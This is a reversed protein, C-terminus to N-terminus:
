GCGRPYGGRSSRRGRSVRFEPRDPKLDRLEAARAEALGREFELKHFGSLEYSTWEQGPIMYMEALAGAKVIDQHAELLAPPFADSGPAPALVLGLRLTYPKHWERNFVLTGPSSEWWWQDPCCGCRVHRNMREPLKSECDACGCQKVFVDEVRVVRIDDGADVTYVGDGEVVCAEYDVFRWVGAGRAFRRMADNMYEQILKEPMDPMLRQIKGLLDAGADGAGAEAGCCAM